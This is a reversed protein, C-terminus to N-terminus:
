PYATWARAGHALYRHVRQGNWGYRFQRAQAVPLTVCDPWFLALAQGAPYRVNPYVVGDGGEAGVTRGFTQGATWDDPDLM